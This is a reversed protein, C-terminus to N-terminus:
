DKKNSDKDFKLFIQFLTIEANIRRLTRYFLLGCTFSSIATKIALYLDLFTRAAESVTGALPRACRHSPYHLLFYVAGLAISPYPHFQSTLARAQALYSTRSAFGM